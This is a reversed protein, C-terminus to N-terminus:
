KTRPDIPNSPYAMYFTGDERYFRKKGIKSLSVLKRKEPDNMPNNDLLQQRNIEKVHDPCPKGKMRKSIAEKLKRLGDETWNKKVGKKSKSSKIKTEESYKRGTQKQRAAERAEPHEQFYKLTKQRAAERAEPHDIFFQKRRESLAKREKESYKKGTIGDGGLTLNYGFEGFTNLTKIWYKEKEKLEEETNASDIQTIKFNEMGYKNFADYLASKFTQKKSVNFHERLRLELNRTTIGVYKKNNILNEICYVIM